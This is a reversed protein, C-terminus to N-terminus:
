VFQLKEFLECYCLVSELSRPTKCDCHTISVLGAKEEYLRRTVKGAEDRKGDNESMTSM